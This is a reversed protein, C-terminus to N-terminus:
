LIMSDDLNSLIELIMWDVQGGVGGWKVMDKPVIDLCKKFVERHLENLVQSGKSLYTKGLMLGSDGRNCSSAM